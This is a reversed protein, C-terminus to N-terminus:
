QQARGHELMQEWTLTPYVIDEAKKICAGNARLATWWAHAM